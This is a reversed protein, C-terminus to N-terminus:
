RIVRYEYVFSGTYRFVEGLVPSTIRVDVRQRGSDGPDPREDLTVTAVPPLPMRLPGLHLWLRESRMRLGGDAVELRLAVELGRRRGLRDHLRGDVVSMTDEMVRQRGRARGPFEFVRQASLTGDATPRNVVSFPVDRGFEPFLVRRWALWTLLPALWRYGSGAIEYVGRGVGVEGAPPTSFYRRLTPDLLEIQNGLVREYVSAAVPAGTM